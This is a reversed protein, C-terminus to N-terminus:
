PQYQHISSLYKLVEKYTINYIRHQNDRAYKDIYLELNDSTVRPTKQKDLDRLSSDKAGLNFSFNLNPNFM